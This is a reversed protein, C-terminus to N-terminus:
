STNMMQGDMRQHLKMCEAHLVTKACTRLTRRDIPLKLMNVKAELDQLLRAQSPITVTTHQLWRRVSAIEKAFSAETVLRGKSQPRESLNPEAPKAVSSSSEGGAEVPKAGQKLCGQMRADAMSNEVQKAFETAVHKAPVESALELQTRLQALAAASSDRDSAELFEKGINQLQEMRKGKRKCERVKALAEIIDEKIVAQKKQKLQTDTSTYGALFKVKNLIAEQLQSLLEPVSLSKNNKKQPLDWERTRTRLLEQWQQQKECSAIADKIKHLEPRCKIQDQPQAQLWACADEFVNISALPRCAAGGDTPSPLGEGPKAVRTGDGSQAMIAGEAHLQQANGSARTAEACSETATAAASRLAHHEPYHKEIVEDRNWCPPMASLLCHVATTTDLAAKFAYANGDCKEAFGDEVLQMIASKPILQMTNRPRGPLRMLACDSPLIRLIDSAPGPDDSASSPQPAPLIVEGLPEPATTAKRESHEERSLAGQANAFTGRASQNGVAPKEASRQSSEQAEGKMYAAPMSTSARLRKQWSRAEVVVKEALAAHLQMANRKVGRVKQRVDWERPQCLKQVADRREATPPLTCVAVATKLRKLPPTATLEQEQRAELWGRLEQLAQLTEPQANTPEEAIEDPNCASSDQELPPGPEEVPKAASSAEEVVNNRVDGSSDEASPAADHGADQSQRLLALISKKPAGGLLRGGLPQWSSRLPEETIDLEAWVGGTVPEVTKATSHDPLQHQQNGSKCFDISACAAHNVASSHLGSGYPLDRQIARKTAKRQERRQKWKWGRLILLRARESSEELDICHEISAITFFGQTASHTASPQAPKAASGQRPQGNHRRPERAKQRPVQVALRKAATCCARLGWANKVISSGAAGGLKAVSTAKVRAPKDARGCSDDMRAWHAQMQAPSASTWDIGLPMASCVAPKAASSAAAVVNEVGRSPTGKPLSREPLVATLTQAATCATRSGWTSKVISCEIVHGPKAVSAAKVQGARGLNGAATEPIGTAMLPVKDATCIRRSGWISKRTSSGTVDGPKGASAATVLASKVKSGAAIM